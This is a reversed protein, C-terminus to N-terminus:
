CKSRKTLPLLGVKIVDDSLAVGTTMLRVAALEKGRGRAGKREQAGGPKNKTSLTDVEEDSGVATTAKAKGKGNISKPNAKVSSVLVVDEVEAEEEEEVETAVKRKKGSREEREEEEEGRVSMISDGGASRRRKAQKQEKEFSVVDPMIEERLRTTAKNAASRRPGGRSASIAPVDVIMSTVNLEEEEDMDGDDDARTKAREKSAGPKPKVKAKPQSKSKVSVTPPASIKAPSPKGRKNTSTSAEAAVAHMSVAPQLQKRGTGPTASAGAGKKGTEREDDREAGTQSSFYEKPVSPVIVSLSLRRKPTRSNKVDPSTPSPSRTPSRPRPIFRENEKKRGETQKEKEKEKTVVRGDRTPKVVARRKGTGVATASGAAVARAEDASEGDLVSSPRSRSKSRPRPKMGSKVPTASGAGTARRPPVSVESGEGKGGDSNSDLDSGITMVKAARRRPPVSTQAPAQKKVEDEARATQGGLRRQALLPKPKPPHAPWPADEDEMEEEPRTQGKGMDGMGKGKEKDKEKGGKSSGESNGAVVQDERATSFLGTSSPKSVSRPTACSGVSTTRAPQNGNAPTRRKGGANDDDDDTPLEIVHDVFAGTASVTMPTSISGRKVRVSSSPTKKVSGARSRPRARSETLIDGNMSMGDATTADAFAEHSTSLRFAGGGERARARYEGDRIEEQEVDITSIGRGGPVAPGSLHQTPM